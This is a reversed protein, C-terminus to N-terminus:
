LICFCENMGACTFFSWIFDTRSSLSHSAPLDDPICVLKSSLKCHGREARSLQDSILEDWCAELLLLDVDAETKMADFEISIEVQVASCLENEGVHM